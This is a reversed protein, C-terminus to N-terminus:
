FQRALGISVMHRQYDFLDINSRNQTWSWTAQVSWGALPGGAFRHDAGLLVRYEDERRARDFLDEAGRFRFHRFGTRGYVTGNEWARWAVGAFFDPSRYSFRSAQASFTYWGAGAQLAVDGGPLAHDVTLSGGQYWGRRSRDDDRQYSRRTLTGDLTVETREGINFTVVPNLSAFRALRRDGLWIQDGQVAVAARGRGPVVWAPGTRLTLVGLNFDDEAFYGRYYGSLQSQWFMEGRREGADFRWGPAWTHTLGPAFVAAWDSRPRSEPTLTALTGNIDIIDRSPGFNVNSDYMLGAYLSGGWRQREAARQLDADIQAMFALVTVRVQPPLEPDALVAEAEARAQQYDASLFHVRALELRARLLGPNEQLLGQLMERATRLRNAELAELAASFREQVQDVGEAAQPSGGASLILFLICTAFKRPM